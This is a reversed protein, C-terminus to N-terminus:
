STKERIRIKPRDPDPGLLFIQDPPMGPMAPPIRWRRVPPHAQSMEMGMKVVLKLALYPCGGKATPKGRAGLKRLEPEGGTGVGTDVDLM